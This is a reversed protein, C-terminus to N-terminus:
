YVQCNSQFAAPDDLNSQNFSCRLDDGNCDAHLTGMGMLPAILRGTADAILGVSFQDFTISCASTQITGELNILVRIDTESVGGTGRLALDGNLGKCQTFPVTADLMLRVSDESMTSQDDLELDGQLAVEGNGCSISLEIPEEDTNQIVRDVNLVALHGSQDPTMGVLLYALWNVTNATTAGVRQIHLSADPDTSNEQGGVYAYVSFLLLAVMVTAKVIVSRPTSM